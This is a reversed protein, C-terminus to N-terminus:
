IAVLLLGARILRSLIILAGGEVSKGEDSVLVRFALYIIVCPGQSCEGGAGNMWRLSSGFTGRLAMLSAITIGFRERLDFRYMIESHGIPLATLFQIKAFSPM